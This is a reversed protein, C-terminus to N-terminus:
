ERYQDFWSVIAKPSVKMPQHGKGRVVIQETEIGQEKLQNYYAKMTFLPVVVDLNGHIFLTPPHDAPLDKPVICLIGLCTAYSASNIALAKFVGPYSVAMRSTM